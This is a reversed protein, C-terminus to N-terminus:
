VLQHLLFAVGNTGRFVVMSHSSFIVEVSLLFPIVVDGHLRMLDHRFFILEKGLVSFGVRSSDVTNATQLWASFSLPVCPAVFSVLSNM